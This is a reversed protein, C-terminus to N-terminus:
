EDLKERIVYNKNRGLLYKIYAEYGMDKILPCDLMAELGNKLRLYDKNLGDHVRTKRDYAQQLFFLKEKYDM